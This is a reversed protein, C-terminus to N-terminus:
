PLKNHSIAKMMLGIRWGHGGKWGTVVKGGERERSWFEAKEIAQAQRGLKGIAFKVAREVGATFEELHRTAPQKGAIGHLRSFCAKQVPCIPRPFKMTWCRLDGNEKISIHLKGRILGSVSEILGELTEKELVGFKGALRAVPCSRSAVGSAAVPSTAARWEPRRDSLSPIKEMGVSSCPGNGNLSKRIKRRHIETNTITNKQNRRDSHEESNKYDNFNYRFRMQWQWSENGEGARVVCAMVRWRSANVGVARYAM